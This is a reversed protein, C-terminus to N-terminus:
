LIVEKGTELSRLVADVLEVAAIGDDLNVMVPAVDRIARYFSQQELLLHDRKNYPISEISEGKAYAIDIKNNMLDVRLLGAASTAELSRVEHVHGRGVTIAAKSGNSWEFNAIAHDFHNTRQKFGQAQIKKPKEGLLFCLLDLDHIMLDNVVDVDTARGKFPAYRDLRLHCGTTLFPALKDKFEWAEHCRESHGAQFILNKGQMLEKIKLSDSLKDTIPKECFIHLGKAILERCIEFHFSTPTAVIAAEVDSPLDAIKEVVLVDPHAEKAKQRSTEFPEVIAVFQAEELASIKQAHFRGLHGYGILATRVPKM